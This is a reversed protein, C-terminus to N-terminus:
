SLTTRVAGLINVKTHLACHSICTGGTPPSLGIASTSLAQTTRKLPGSGNGRTAARDLCTKSRGACVCLILIPSITTTGTYAYKCMHMCHVTHICAYTCQMRVGIVVHTCVMIHMCVRMHVHVSTRVHVSIYVCVHVHVSIYM